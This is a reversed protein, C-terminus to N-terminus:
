KQVYDTEGEPLAIWVRVIPGEDTEIPRAALIRAKKPISNTAEDSYHFYSPMGAKQAAGVKGASAKANNSRLEFYYPKFVQGTSMGDCEGLAWGEKAPYFALIGSQIIEIDFLRNVKREQM